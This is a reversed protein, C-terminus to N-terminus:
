LIIIIIIIFVDVHSSPFFQLATLLDFGCKKSVLVM